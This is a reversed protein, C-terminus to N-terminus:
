GSRLPKLRQIVPLIASPTTSKRSVISTWMRWACHGAPERPGQSPANCSISSNCVTLCKLSRTSALSTAFEKNPKTDSLSTKRRMFSIAQAVATERLLPDPIPSRSRSAPVPPWFPRKRCARSCKPNWRAATRRTLSLTWLSAM